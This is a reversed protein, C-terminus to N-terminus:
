ALFDGSAFAGATIGEFVAVLAIEAATANTDGSDTVAYLYANGSQYAILYFDDSNTALTIGTSATDTSSLAKLLETGSTAGSLGLNGFSSLTTTIEVVDTLTTTTAIGTLVFASAGTTLVASSSTSAFVATADDGTGVTTQANIVNVVDIGTGAAFGRITDVGNTATATLVVTDIAATTETLIIVDNGTGGTITDAGAGGTITDVNVAATSGTLVDNGAGGTITVAANATANLSAYTVALAIATDTTAALTATALTNNAVVGSADFNTVLISGTPTLTLGNNGTVTISTAAAATLTMSNTTADSGTTVADAASINITEVNAALVTAAAYADGSNFIALNLVDNANAVASKVNITTTGTSDTTNFQVKGGSALNGITATTAGAALIVTSVANIGDLDLADEVMADSIRLIEFGTFKSNFTSSGDAGAALADTMIITDGTGDGAAVSGGTAVAATTTTVTDNGAGLSIAKSTSGITITEAGAGGTVATAVPLAAGISVGAGTSNIATVAAIDTIATLTAVAAGSFNLTTAATLTVDAVTTAVSTAVNVTTYQVAQTGSIAGISGGGLNLNLTTARTSTDAATINLGLTGSALTAGTLNLTSLVNSTITSNGYNTLSVTTLTDSATTANGDVITVTSNTRGIVAAAATAAGTNTVSISTTSANGTVAVTGAVSTTNVANSGAQTVSITTGGTVAIAGHTVAGTTTSSVTVAGAAATTAGVTVSGTTAGTSTSNVTSGGNIAIAGAALATDTERISTTTAATLTAGGVSQATIATLGSFGATSTVTNATVTSGSIFNVNEFSAVTAAVPAAAAIAATSVFNFTDTGEGGNVSDGVTFTTDTGNFTDANTTSTTGASGILTAGDVGTTLTFTQGAAVTNVIAAKATDVSAAVETVGSLATTAGAVTGNQEGYYQAVAVKNAFLSKSTLGAADTGTYNVVNSILKEFFAGQTAAATYEKVWYALGEADPARGLVNTYFTTVVESPTAFLPYYARAPTTEYMAQAIKAITNGNAYSSVWFGLGEGDPARGFLSVYLNSIETRMAVTTIAPM